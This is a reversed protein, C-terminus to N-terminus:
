EAPRDDERRRGAALCLRAAITRACVDPGACTTDVELDYAVGEHVVKAQSAAM